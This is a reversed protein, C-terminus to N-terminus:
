HDLSHNPSFMKVSLSIHKALLEQGFDTLHIQDWWLSGRNNLTYDRMIDHAELYFVEGSLIEVKFWKKLDEYDNVKHPDYSPENILLVKSGKEILFHVVEKVTKEFQGNNLLSLNNYVNNLIVLKPFPILNNQKLTNQINLINDGSLSLDILDCNECLQNRILYPLSYEISTAGIGKAQSGGLYLVSNDEIKQKSIYPLHKTEKFVWSFKFEGVRGQQYDFYNQLPPNFVQEDTLHARIEQDFLWRRNKEVISSFNPNLHGGDLQGYPYIKSWLFYDVLLVPSLVFLILILFSNFLFYIHSSLYLYIGLIFLVLFFFYRFLNKYFKQYDFFNIHHIKSAQMTIKEIPNNKLSGQFGFFTEESSFDVGVKQDNVSIFVKEETREVNISYQEKTPIKLYTKELFRGELNKIGVIWDKSASYELFAQETSDLSGLFFLVRGSKNLNWNFKLSELKEYPGLVVEQFGNWVDLNLQNQALLNRSQYAGVTGMLYYNARFKGLSIDPYNEVTHGQYQLFFSLLGSVLFSLFFASGLHLKLLPGIKM